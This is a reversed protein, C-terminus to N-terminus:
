FMRNMLSDSLLDRRRVSALGNIVPPDQRPYHALGVVEVMVGLGTLRM